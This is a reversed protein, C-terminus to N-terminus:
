LRAHPACHGAMCDLVDAIAETQTERNAADYRDWTESLLQSIEDRSAGGELEARVAAHLGRFPEASALLADLDLSPSHTLVTM